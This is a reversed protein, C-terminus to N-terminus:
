VLVELAEFFDDLEDFSKYGVKEEAGGRVAFGKIATQETFAKPGTENLQIDILIPYRESWDQVQALTYPHGSELDKAIIGSKSFNLLFYNAHEAKSELMEEVDEGSMYAEPVIEQIIEVKDALAELTEDPTLMGLQITDLQLLDIATQIDEATAFGFEGCIKVGDVWEQLASVQRVDVSYEEGPSLYFGLWETEWAAFYRADTLHTISSAKVKTSLM